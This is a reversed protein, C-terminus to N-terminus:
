KRFGDLATELLGRREVFTMEANGHCGVASMNNQELEISYKHAILYWGNVYEGPDVKEFFEKIHVELELRANNYMERYEDSGYEM